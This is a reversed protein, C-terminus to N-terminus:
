ELYVQWDCNQFSVQFVILSTVRHFQGDTGYYGARWIGSERAVEQVVRGSVYSMHSTLTAINLLLLLFFRVNRGGICNNIWSCHHDFRYVCHNCYAPDSLFLFLLLSFMLATQVSNKFPNNLKTIILSLLSGITEM